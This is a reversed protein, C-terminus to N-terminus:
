KLIDRVELLKLEPSAKVAHTLIPLHGSGIVVLVREAKTQEIMLYINQLIRLNRNYWATKMDPGFYDDPMGMGFKFSDVIYIGHSREIIDQDNIYLYYEILPIQTKKLDNYRYLKSYTPYWEKTGPAFKKLSDIYKKEQAEYEEDSLDTMNSYHRGRADVGYVRNQNLMGALRFGIQYIENAPLEFDGARYKRFNTLIREEHESKFELGIADPKFESLKELIEHLEKQRHDSTIDIDYQPKYSDLGADKFHFTGLLLVETKPYTEFLSKTDQQQFSLVTVPISIFLIFLLSKCLLNKM